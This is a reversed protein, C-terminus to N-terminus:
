AFSQHAQHPFDSLRKLISFFLQSFGALGAMGVVNQSQAPGEASPPNGQREETAAQGANVFRVPTTDDESLLETPVHTQSFAHTTM